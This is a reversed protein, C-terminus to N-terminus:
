EVTWVHASWILCWFETDSPKTRPVRRLGTFEGCLHGTVRFTNGNSSTMLFIASTKCAVDEISGRASQNLRRKQKASIIWNHFWDANYIIGIIHSKPPMRWWLDKHKCLVIFMVFIVYKCIHYHNSSERISQKLTTHSQICICVVFIPQLRNCIGRFSVAWKNNLIQMFSDGVWSLQDPIVSKTWLRDWVVFAECAINCDTTATLFM